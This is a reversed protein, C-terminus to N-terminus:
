PANRVSIVVTSQASGFSQDRVVVRLTYVGDPIGSTDWTAIVGDVIQSTTRGILQWDTPAIGAGVEITTELLATAGATGTVTVIGNVVQNNTPRTLAIYPQDPSPAAAEGNMVTLPVQYYATGRETDQLVVRLTYEGDPVVSTDWVGLPGNLVGRTSEAVRIWQTPEAGRGWEVAFSVLQDSMARGTVIVRGQVTTSPAPSTIQVLLASGAPAESPALLAGVGAKEAWARVGGWRAVENKPFVLRVEERVFAAPATAAALLGSRTDIRVPQWWSDYLEPASEPDRPLVSAAFLSTYRHLSPCHETPLRGSPWCVEREVVGPPREFPTPPLELREIAVAMLERWTRLSVTTSTIGNIRSNDSNGSWVGAVLNPTYGM